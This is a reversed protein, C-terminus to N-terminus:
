QNRSSLSIRHHFEREGVPHLLHVVSSLERQPPASASAFLIRSRTTPRILVRRQVSPVRRDRCCNFRHRGVSTRTKRRLASQPSHFRQIAIQRSPSPPCPGFLQDSRISRPREPLPGGFTSSQRTVPAHSLIVTHNPAATCHNPAQEKACKQITLSRVKKKRIHMEKRQHSLRLSPVAVQAHSANFWGPDARSRTQVAGSSNEILVPRYSLLLCLLSVKLGTRIMAPM